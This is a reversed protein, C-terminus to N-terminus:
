RHENGGQQTDSRGASRGPLLTRTEEETVSRGEARLEQWIRDELVALAANSPLGEEAVEEGQRVVPGATV